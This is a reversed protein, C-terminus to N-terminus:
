DNHIRAHVIKQGKANTVCSLIKLSTGRPLLLEREEDHHGTIPAMKQGKEVHIHFQVQTSFADAKQKSCSTAMFSNDKFISGAKLDKTFSCHESGRFVMMDKPAGAGKEIAKDLHDITGKLHTPPPPARLGESISEYKGGSWTTIAAKQDGQLKKNFDARFAKLDADSLPTTSLKGAKSSASPKEEKENKEDKTKSPKDSTTTKGGDAIKGAKDAASKADNASNRANIAHGKDSESGSAKAMKEAKSACNDAHKASVAAALAFKKQELPSTANKAKQLCDQAKKSFFETRDAREACTATAPDYKKGSSKQSGGGEGFKGDAARPHQDPDFSM